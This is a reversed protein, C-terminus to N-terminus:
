DKKQWQGVIFCSFTKTQFRSLFFEIKLLFPTYYRKIRQPIRLILTNLVLMYAVNGLYKTKLVKFRTINKAALEDFDISGENKEFFNKDFRYWLKRAKDPLSKAHPEVFCFYGDPKLVRYIEDIANEVYPHLHHLGGVLVVCDFSADELGTDLISGTIVKYTPFSKKFSDTMQSSIDLGTVKAGKSALFQTTQGSGCMAELVQKGSLDLGETMPMNYFIARYKQSSQDSYHLEYQNGIRDFLESQIQEETTKHIETM